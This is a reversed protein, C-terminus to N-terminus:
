GWWEIGYMVSFVRVFERWNCSLGILSLLFVVLMAGPTEYDRRLLAQVAVILCSLALIVYLHFAVFSTV